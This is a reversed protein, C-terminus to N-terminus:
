VVEPNALAPVRVDGTLAAILNEATERSMRQAAEISVGASHPSVLVRQDLLLPHDVPPPEDSYVDIGAGAIHGSQLADALAQEAVIGGRACNIVFGGAKLQALEAEDIIHRTEDNLPCHVTLFDTSPLVDMLDTVVRCGAAEIEAAPVYPDYVHVAMDFARARTALKTGIRGFGVITLVRDAIDLAIPASRFSFDGRRAAADYENAHKALSLVFLMTHEAVSVANANVALLLPIKRQNLSPVHVNDYGVGHRAVARLETAAALVNPTLKASRVAIGQVGAVAAILGAEDLSEPKILEIEPHDIFLQQGVPQLAETMLVKM